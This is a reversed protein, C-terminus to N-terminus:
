QEGGVQDIFIDNLSPEVQEFKTIAAGSGILKKLIVQADAGDAIEIEAEDAHYVVSKVLAEDSLV